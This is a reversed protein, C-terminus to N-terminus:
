QPYVLDGHIERYLLIEQKIAYCNRNKLEELEESSYNDVGTCYLLNDCNRFRLKEFEFDYDIDVVYRKSGDYIYAIGSFYGDIIEVDHFECKDM